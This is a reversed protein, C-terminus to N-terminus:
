EKERREPMGKNQPQSSAGLLWCKCQQCGEPCPAAANTETQPLLFFMHPSKRPCVLCFCGYFGPQMDPPHKLVASSFRWRAGAPDQASRTAWHTCLFAFSPRSLFAANMDILDQCESVRCYSIYISVRIWHSFRWDRELDLHLHSLESVVELLLLAARSLHVPRCISNRFGSTCDAKFVASFVIKPIGLTQRQKLLALLLSLLTYGFNESVGANIRCYM